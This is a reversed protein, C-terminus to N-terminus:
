ARIREYARKKEWIPRSRLRRGDGLQEISMRPTLPVHMGLAKQMSIAVKDALREQSVENQLDMFTVKIYKWGANEIEERRQDDVLVQGSNFRHHKGDYEIAIRLEPYAMDLYVSRSSGPLVMRHNVDPVPLGYRILAIRTRTEQSSDTNERILRLAQRCKRIGEFGRAEAVYRQLEEFTTRKLRQDRRMMSDALVVVEELPLIAATHAWACAATVCTFRREVLQTEIPGSWALYTVNQVHGRQSLKPVVVQHATGIPPMIPKEIALLELATARTFVLPQRTRELLQACTRMRLYKLETLAKISLSEVSM